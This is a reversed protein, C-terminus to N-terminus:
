DGSWGFGRGSADDIAAMRNRGTREKCHQAAMAAAAASAGHLLKSTIPRHCPTPASSTVLGRTTLRLENASSKREVATSSVCHNFSTPRSSEWTALTILFHGFRRPSSLSLGFTCHNCPKPMSPECIALAIMFSAVRRRSSLKFGFTSHNIPKPMVLERTALNMKCFGATIRLLKSCEQFGITCHNFSEPIVSKCTPAVIEWNGFSM